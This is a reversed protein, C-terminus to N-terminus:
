LSVMPAGVIWKCEQRMKEKAFKDAVIPLLLLLLLKSSELDDNEGMRLGMNCDETQSPECSVPVFWLGPSSIQM